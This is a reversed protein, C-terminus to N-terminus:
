SDRSASETDRPLPTPLPEATDDNYDEITSTEQPFAGQSFIAPFTFRYDIRKPRWRQQLEEADAYARSPWQGESLNIGQFALLTGKQLHVNKVAKTYETVAQFYRSQADSLRQQADLLLDLPANGTRFTADTSDRRQIAAGLRNYNIRVASHARVVEAIADGLLHSITREQEKHVARARALRLEANRVGAWAQRFGLPLNLQMGLQWEQHDGSGLDKFASAFGGGGDGTLDDGFGRWRYQAVADLRPLTFNRAAILELELRKIQWLQRRLEVRRTLAEFTAQEWDFVVKASVPEDSPRILRGDNTPLGMLRRLRREGQYIGVSTGGSPAGNLADRVLNEFLFYQERAQAEKDAEGGRLKKIYKAEVNRWTDLASDRALMKADLDRYAFYLNWYADYVQGVFDRVGTEFDALSIDTNIRSILVGRSFFFGPQANPGAIRNFTTGAGQLLPQRVDAEFQTDWGSFFLNGPQNSQDYQTLNRISFRTGTAAVKSLEAQFDGLDQQIERAGGGLVINNVARDNKSWFMSTSFQADFASLAGETGFLPDSERIAPDFVSPTNDPSTLVRAGLDKLVKSNSLAISLVEEFSIDWYDSPAEDDVTRPPLSAIGEYEECTTADPYEIQTAIAHFGSPHYQCDEHVEGNRAISCGVLALLISGIALKRLWNNRM